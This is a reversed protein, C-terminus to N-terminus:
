GRAGPGLMAREEAPHRGPHFRAAGEHGAEAGSSEVVGGDPMVVARIDLFGEPFRVRANVLVVGKATREVVASRGPRPLLAGGLRAFFADLNDLVDDLTRGWIPAM